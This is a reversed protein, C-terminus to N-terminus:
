NLMALTDDFFVRNPQLTVFFDRIICIIQM